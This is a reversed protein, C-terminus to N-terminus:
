YMCTFLKFNVQNFLNKSSINMSYVPWPQPDYVCIMRCCKSCSILCVLFVWIIIEIKNREYTFASVAVLDNAYECLYPCLDRPQKPHRLPFHERALSITKPWQQATPRGTLSFKFPLNILICVCTKMICCVSM